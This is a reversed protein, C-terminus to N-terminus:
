TSGTHDTAYGWVQQLGIFSSKFNITVTLTLTNGSGSKTMSALSCQSNSLLNASSLAYPGLWSGANDTALSVTNPSQDYKVFCGGPGDLGWNFVFEYVSLDAYGSSSSPTFVFTHSTGSGSNPSMGGASPQASAPLSALCALVCSSLSFCTGGPL